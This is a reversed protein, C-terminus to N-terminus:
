DTPLWSSCETRRSTSGKSINAQHTSTVQCWWWFPQLWSWRVKFKSSALESIRPTPFHVLHTSTRTGKSVQSTKTKIRHGTWPASLTTTSCYKYPTFSGAFIAGLVTTEELLPSLWFLKLSLQSLWSGNFGIPLSSRGRILSLSLGCKATWLAGSTSSFNVRWSEKTKWIM